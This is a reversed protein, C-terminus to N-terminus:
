QKPIKVRPHPRGYRVTWEANSMAMDQRWGKRFFREPVYLDNPSDRYPSEFRGASDWRLEKGDLVGIVVKQGRIGGVRVNKVVRGDRTMVKMGAEYSDTQLPYLYIYATKSRMCICRDEYEDLNVTWDKDMDTM